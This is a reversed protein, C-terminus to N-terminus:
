AGNCDYDPEMLQVGRISHQFLMREDFEGENNYWNAFPADKNHRVLVYVEHAAHSGRLMMLDHDFYLGELLVTRVYKRLQKM